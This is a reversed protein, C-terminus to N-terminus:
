LQLKQVMTDRVAKVSADVSDAVGPSQLLDSLTQRDGLEWLADMLEIREANSQPPNFNRAIKEPDDLNTLAELLVRRALGNDVYPLLLEVAGNYDSSAILEQAEILASVVEQRSSPPAFESRSINFESHTEADGLIHRGWIPHDLENNVMSHIHVHGRGGEVDLEIVNFSRTRCTPLSSPGGCLTGAGIVTIQGEAGFRSTTHIRESRHHHGHLGVTFGHALLLQVREEDMFDPKHPPASVSHHWVGVLMRGSYCPKRLEALSAAIAESHINGLRHWPDNTYCSSYGVVTLMLDEYDFIEFQKAPDLPFTRQGAYFRGYFARFAKLRHLYADIDDIEYLARESWSWRFRSDREFLNKVLEGWKAEDYEVKKLSSLFVPFSVDHNGPVIIVHSRRGGLLEDTLRALFQEAQDYQAELQARDADPPVGEVLDGSVVILDPKAVPPKLAGFRGVAALLSEFLPGNALPAEPDRHLDSIHLISASM